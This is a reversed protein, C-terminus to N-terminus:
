YVSLGRVRPSKTAYDDIDYKATTPVTCTINLVRTAAGKIRLHLTLDSSVAPREGETAM